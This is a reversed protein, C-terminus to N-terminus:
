CRIWCQIGQELVNQPPFPSIPTHPKSKLGLCLKQDRGLRIRSWGVWTDRPLVSIIPSLFELSLYHRLKLSKPLSRGVWWQPVTLPRSCPCWISWCSKRHLPCQQQRFRAKEAWQLWIFLELSLIQLFYFPPKLSASLPVCGAWAELVTGGEIFLRLGWILHPSATLLWHHPVLTIPDRNRREHLKLSQRWYGLPQTQRNLPEAAKKRIYSCPSPHQLPLCWIWSTNLKSDFSFLHSTHLEQLILPCFLLSLSM